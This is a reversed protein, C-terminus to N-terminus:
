GGIKSMSFPVSYESATNLQHQSPKWSIVQQLTNQLAEPDAKRLIPKLDLGGESLLCSKAVGTSTVRIRNCSACFHDSMPTIIGITGPANQIRYPKAPGCYPVRAIEELSFKEQLRQLIEQGTFIKQQWKDERITPMYEIYRISWPKQQSLTAFPIIERDNVDRIVVMNLKIKMGASEAEELGCLVTDLKGGRTIEAFTAPQLSDLSVNLRRIGADWLAQVQGNLLLGNTTLTVENIGPIQAIDSILRIVGRRVLPEGGTIRVKRIGIVSAATTIQLLEEFSLIDKHGLQEIGEAPMCYHCRLNCRDTVSLRLYNITRGMTDPM